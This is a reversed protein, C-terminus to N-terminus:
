FLIIKWDVHYTSHVFVFQLYLDDWFVFILGRICSISCVMFTKGRSFLGSYPISYYLFSYTNCEYCLLLGRM